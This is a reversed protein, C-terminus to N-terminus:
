TRVLLLSRVGECVYESVQSFGSTGKGVTQHCVRDTRPTRCPTGECRHEEGASAHRSLTRRFPPRSQPSAAAATGEVQCSREQRVHAHGQALSSARRARLSSPM